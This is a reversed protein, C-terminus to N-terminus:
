ATLSQSTQAVPSQPIAPANVRQQTDVVKGAVSARTELTKAQTLGIEAQAKAAVIQQAQQKLALEAAKDRLQAAQQDLQQKLEAIQGEYQQKGADMIQTLQEITQMMQQKEPDVGGAEDTLGLHKRLLDSMEKRKPLDTSELWYPTLIAQLEPPLGKLVEAIMTMAQARYAPTSPIDALTVKGTLKSVDNERYEIGTQPDIVPKGLIIIKKRSAEEAIVKVERGTLDQTVLDLALQGVIRRSYRFNDNIDGQNTTGQEVLSSIATGSKAGDAKGLMSNYVGATEQIAQQSELMVTYQQTSLALDTEISIANANRRNPNLVALMNPQAAETELDSIDNYEHDLADSDVMVRKSALLALLKRRRANIEDQLSLMDRVIGYPARTDDERYGWFPVYPLRKSGYESDSLKHPGVWLSVHLKSFVATRPQAYGGVIAAVHVPNKKSFEVVRGDPMTMVLGRVYRRYWVERLCLLGSETNRWESEIWSAGQQETNLDFMLGTDEVRRAYDVWEDSWGSGIAKIRAADEPYFQILVDVPFWRARVFYRADDLDYETAAWDWSLENRHVATCLYPYKFPDPQRGVFVWGVGAVIQAAYADSCASDARSEREFEALKLSMAEAMDQHEEVDTVVRWDARNKAELGLLANVSPRIFNAIVPSQKAESIAQALEQDIQKGHYYAYCKDATRRWQPQRRIDEAIRSLQLHTMGASSPAIGTRDHEPLNDQVDDLM